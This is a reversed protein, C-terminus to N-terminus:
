TQALTRFWPTGNDRRMNAMCENILVEKMNSFTVTKSILDRVNILEKDILEVVSQFDHNNAISSAEYGHLGSLKIEKRVLTDVSNTKM